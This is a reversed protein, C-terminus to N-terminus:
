DRIKGVQDLDREISATLQTQRLAAASKLAERLYQIGIQKEGARIPVTGLTYALPRGILGGRLRERATSYWRGL